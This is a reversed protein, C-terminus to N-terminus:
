VLDVCQWERELSFEEAGNLVLAHAAQAGHVTALQIDLADSRRRRLQAHAHCLAPEARVEVMTQRHYQQLYWGQTRAALIDQHQRLVKHALIRLRM